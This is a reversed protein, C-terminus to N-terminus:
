DGTGGASIPVGKSPYHAECLEVTEEDLDPSGSFDPPRESAM